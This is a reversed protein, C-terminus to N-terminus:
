TLRFSTIFGFMQDATGTFSFDTALSEGSAAQKVSAFIAAAAGAGATTPHATYGGTWSVPGTVQGMSDILAFAVAIEAAAADSSPQLSMSTIATDALAATTHKYAADITGNAGSIELVMASARCSGTWQGTVNTESGTARRWYLAGSISTAAQVAILNWGSPTTFTGANKDPAFCAILLNGPSASISVALSTVATEGSTATKTSVVSSSGGTSGGGGGGTGVSPTVVHDGAYTVYAGTASVVFDYGAPLAPVVETVDISLVTDRPTNTASAHTERLTIQRPTSEALSTPTTGAVISTGSVAFRGGDNVLLSLTSGATRGQIQGVVTGSAAGEQIDNASLSLAQLTVQENVDIVLITLTTDKPSGTAGALTERITIQHSPATEFDLATSGTVITNGSLAFRGGATNTLSLTSGASQGVINGVVTGAPASELVDHPSVSLTNLTVAGGGGAGVSPDLANGSITHPHKPNIIRWFQVRAQGTGENTKGQGPYGIGLYAGAKFYMAKGPWFSSLPSFATYLVGNFACQVRIGSSDMEIAYTFKSGLPINPKNGNPTGDHTLTFFTEQQSSGAKDDAFALYGSTTNPDTQMFYLRCPEDAPGHIQGIIVRRDNGVKTLVPLELVACTCELKGGASPLWEYENSGDALIERLECRTYSTSGTMAGQTPTKFIISGDVQRDFYQNDLSGLAPPWVEVATGSLGGSSNYPMTCKWPGATMPAISVTTPTQTATNTKTTLTFDAFKDGVTLRGTVSTDYSSSSMRQVRVTDNNLVTGAQTTYAGGNKSYSLGGSVSIPTAATIGTITVLPSTYVTNLELGTQPAGFSFANPSTDATPPPTTGGEAVDTLIVSLTTDRPSGTVGAYTERVTVTFSPSTEYDLATAGVALMNGNLIQARGGGNNVLTLTSGDTIDLITGIMNGSPTNEPITSPQLRLPTLADNLVQAVAIRFTTERPTNVAGQLTERLTIIHNSAVSWNFPVTGTARVETGVLQFRGGGDAIMSLTSGATLRGVTGVLTGALANEPVSYKSLSLENLTAGVGGEAVDTVNITFTTDRPSNTAGALTERVVIQFSPTAEYDSIASGAVINLGSLKVKNGGNNVLTITSGITRGSLTGIATGEVSNEALTNASLTLAGLTPATTEQVDQLSITITTDRPTNTAGALTERITIQHSPATEYDLTALAVLINAGSIKFRGGADGPLSLTSNPTKGIVAGVLTDIPSNEPITANSLTLSSLTVTAPPPTTSAAGLPLSVDWSNTAVKHLSLWQGPATLVLGTSPVLTVGTAPAVTVDGEGACFVEIRTDVPFAVATNTPVTLTGATAMDMRVRKNADSLVLTRGSTYTVAQLVSGSPGIPGAPGQPIGFVVTYNPYTGTITAAAPTGAPLTQTQTTFVPPNTVTGTPGPPGAPGQLAFGAAWDGSTATRKVFLQAPSLDIALFTFGQNQADYQVRETLSGFADPRFPLGAELRNIMEVIRQHVSVNSHWYPAVQLIEFPVDEKSPGSWPQTLTLKATHERSEIKAARGDAVFLDGAAAVFQTLYGTVIKSGNTVVVTNEVPM